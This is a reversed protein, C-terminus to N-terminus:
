SMGSVLILNLNYILSRAGCNKDDFIGDKRSFNHNISQIMEQLKTWDFNYAEVMFLFFIILLKEKDNVQWIRKLSRNYVNSFFNFSM